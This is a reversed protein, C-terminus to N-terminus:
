KLVVTGLEQALENRIALLKQQVKMHAVLQDTEGAQTLDKIKAQNKDCMRMIKKLKFRKLAQISDKTFNEEPKSQTQLYVDHMKEWNESYEYPSTILNIALNRIEEDEHNTFFATDPVEDALLKEMGVKVLRQFGKNDFDEIVDEINGLIYEAISVEEEKDFIQSGAEVLIRAIDKEQFTDGPSVEEKKKLIATPPPPGDTEEGFGPPPETGAWAEDSLKQQKKKFSKTLIKNIENILIREELQVQGACERVYLSRKIPDPIKAISAVIDKVLGSKKIPDGAAEEMLLDTKFLIFDKAEDKIFAKFATTGVKQLYSDPDEGEPLLVVKVNMDQELVLDLGRLAAKIGAVDGDYLIKINPTYRKIVRIQEVTLSTGSSAVVNEIGSQHLSLVDTYGEVLICEDEKRISKKAFFAGYLTKSKNYVETEPTNIYKPIKKGKQLTRGGFGVVKGSLNHITFMVRDRFFDGDFKNTLGLKRLLELNYGKLTAERTFDDKQRDAYGLGFKRITEERFGREKFYSLGVSRGESSNFLNNQFFDKAFENILYLSDLEQQAAIEEHSQETEEIEIGYKNALWRLAEPFSLGEHEMLFQVPGGGQGCGFCKFINKAPSVTFSPTKETHFPCLGILNVGRRKLNVFDQVVDEVKATELIEEVSKQKIM